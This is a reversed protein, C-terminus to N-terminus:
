YSPTPLAYGVSLLAATSEGIWHVLFSRQYDIYQIKPKIGLNRVEELIYSALKFLWAKLEGYVPFPMMKALERAQAAILLDTTFQEM